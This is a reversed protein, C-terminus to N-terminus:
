KASLIERVTKTFADPDQFIAFHSVGSLLILRAGPIQAAIEESHARRIVEDHEAHLVLTRVKIAALEQRTLAPQTKWMVSLAAMVAGYRAPHPSLKRYEDRTRAIYAAMTSPNANPQYGAPTANGAFAILTSFRGPNKLALYFGINAGDSWGAIATKEVQLHDLVGLVDDAMQQYSISKGDQTSRGQGRSDIVLVHHDRALDRVLHGWHDSSGGGGHLLLIAPANRAGFSAYWIRAGNRQVHGSADPDPLAPAAPLQM